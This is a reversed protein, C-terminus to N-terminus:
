YYMWYGKIKRKSNYELAPFPLKIFTMGKLVIRLFKSNTKIRTWDIDLSLLYQRYRITQPIYVGDYEIINEFEGYMGNAGYGLSIDLWDPTIKNPIIKNASISFWYTHGNYDNFIRNLSNTGLYGNAKRSYISEWYSFKYKIVQEKFILEQGFVIASGFTNAAMDGWSFGYGEYLGDMIEIPTQLILGLTAGYILADKRSHGANLLYNFSNYSYVYAGYTHGFKDVQLYGKNDNYFHFSVRERGRYWTKSLFYLSGVYYASRYALAKSVKIKNQNLTDISVYNDQQALSYKSLLLLLCMFLIITQAKPKRLSRVFKTNIDQKLCM